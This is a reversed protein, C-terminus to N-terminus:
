VYQAYFDCSKWCTSPFGTNVADCKPPFNTVIDQDGEPMTPLQDIPRPLCPRHNDKAIIRNQIMYDFPEIANEQPNMCLWEWRNWGNGRLTCPPNSIRTSENPLHNKCSMNATAAATKCFSSMDAPKCYEPDRSAKRTILRLESEIDIPLVDVCGSNGEANMGFIVTNDEPFCTDCHKNQMDLIIGGVATSQRLDNKYTNVDQKLRNFSM